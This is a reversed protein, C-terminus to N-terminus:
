AEIVGGSPLVHSADPVFMDDDGAVTVAVAAPLSAARLMREFDFATRM